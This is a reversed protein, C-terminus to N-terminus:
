FDKPRDFVLILPRSEGSLSVQANNDLGIWIENETLELAEASGWEPHKHGLRDVLIFKNEPKEVTARFSVFGQEILGPFSEKWVGRVERDLIYISSGEM